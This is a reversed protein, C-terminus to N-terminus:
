PMLATTYAKSDNVLEDGLYWSYFDNDSQALFTVEPQEFSPYDPSWTFRADPLPKVLTSIIQSDRCGLSNQSTVVWNYEGASYSPTADLDVLASTNRVVVSYNYDDGNDSKFQWSPM